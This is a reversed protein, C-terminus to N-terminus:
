NPLPPPAGHAPAPDDEREVNGLAAHELADMHKIEEANASAEADATAAASTKDEPM